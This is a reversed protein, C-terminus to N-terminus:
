KYVNQPGATKGRITTSLRPTPTKTKTELWKGSIRETLIFSYISENEYVVKSVRNKEYCSITVVTAV